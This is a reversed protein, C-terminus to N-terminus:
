KFAQLILGGLTAFAAGIAAAMVVMGGWREMRMELKTVRVGVGHLREDVRSKLDVHDAKLVLHERHVFEVPDNPIKSDDM